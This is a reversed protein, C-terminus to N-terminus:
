LIVKSKSMKAKDDGGTLWFLLRGGATMDAATLTGALNAFYTVGFFPHRSDFVIQEGALLKFSEPIPVAVDAQKKTSLYCDTTATQLQVICKEYGNTDLLNIVTNLKPDNLGDLHLPIAIMRPWIAM